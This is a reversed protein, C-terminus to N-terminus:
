RLSKMRVLVVEGEEPYIKPTFLWLHYQNLEAKELKLETIRNQYDQVLKIQEMIFKDTKLDPYLSLIAMLKTSTMRDQAQTLNSQEYSIYSEVYPAIENMIKESQSELVLIKQDVTSKTSNYCTYNVTLAIASGILLIGCIVAVACATGSDHRDAIIGGVILGALGIILLIWLM